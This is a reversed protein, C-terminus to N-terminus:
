TKQNPNVSVHTILGLDFSIIKKKHLEQLYDALEVFRQSQPILDEYLVSDNHRDEIREVITRFVRSTGWGANLLLYISSIKIPALMQRTFKEGQLPSFSISPSDSYSVNPSFDFNKSLSFSPSSDGGTNKSTSLGFDLNSSASISQSTTISEVSVFYPRDEFQIRVLNLLLQQEESTIMAQTFGQRNYPLQVTGISTCNTLFIGFVIPVFYKLKQCCVYICGNMKNRSM